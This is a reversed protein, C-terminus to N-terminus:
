FFRFLVFSGGTQATICLGCQSAWSERWRRLGWWVGLLFFTSSFLSHLQMTQGLAQASCSSYMQQHHATWCGLPYLQLSSLSSCPQVHASFFCFLNQVNPGVRLVWPYFLLICFPQDAHKQPFTGLSVKCHTPNKSCINHLHTNWLDKYLFQQPAISVLLYVSGLESSPSVFSNCSTTLFINAQDLILLYSGTFLPLPTNM